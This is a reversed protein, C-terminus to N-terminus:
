TNKTKMRIEIRLGNVYSACEQIQKKQVNAHGVGPYIHYRCLKKM